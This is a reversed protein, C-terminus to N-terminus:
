YWTLNKTIFAMTMLQVVLIDIVILKEQRRNNMMIVRSTKMMKKISIKLNTRLIEGMM